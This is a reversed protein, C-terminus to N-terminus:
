CYFSSFNLFNYIGSSLAKNKLYAFGVERKPIPIDLPIEILEGADLEAQVFEKIVCAIGIDTKAFDILLDMNTVELVQLPEISNEKLYVDVYKRSINDEDLLMINATSFVKDSESRLKLNKIYSSTAVFTDQINGLHIFELNEKETPKAVLGIDLSKNELLMLTDFSSQSKITIRTHPFKRTFGKLHPLLMHKCLTISVGIYLQDVGLSKNIKLIEVGKHLSKFANITHEYLLDGEKTPSVGKSSRYFLTTELNEELQKISKSVAPQSIYLQKAALSISKSEVVTNFIHYLALNPDM